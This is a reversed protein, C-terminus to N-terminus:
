ARNFWSSKYNSVLSFFRSWFFINNSIVELADGEIHEFATWVRSTLENINGTSELTMGNCVEKLLAKNLRNLDQPFILSKITNM